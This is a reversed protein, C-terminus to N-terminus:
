LIKNVGGAIVSGVILCALVTLRLSFRLWKNLLFCFCNHIRTISRNYQIEDLQMGAIIYKFQANCSYWQGNNQQKKYFYLELALSPIFISGQSWHPRNNLFRLLLFSCSFNQPFLKFQWSHPFVKLVWCDKTPWLFALWVSFAFNTLFTKLAAWFKWSTFDGIILRIHNLIILAILQETSLIVHQLM